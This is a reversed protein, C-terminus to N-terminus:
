LNERENEFKESQFEDLKVKMRYFSSYSFILNSLIIKWGFVDVQLGTEPKDMRNSWMEILNTGSSFNNHKHLWNWVINMWIRQVSLLMSGQEHWHIFQQSDLPPPPPPPSLHRSNTLQIQPRSSLLQTFHHFQYSTDTGQSTPIHFSTHATCHFITNVLQHFALFMNPSTRKLGNLVFVGFYKNGLPFSGRNYWWIPLLFKKIENCILFIQHKPYVFYFIFM